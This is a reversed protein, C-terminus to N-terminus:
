KSKWRVRSVWRAWKQVDEREALKEVENWDRALEEHSAISHVFSHCARCLWAVKNLEWEECWGRKLAKGHVMRPILHHYTLPVWDRECLECETTRTQAWIPPPATTTNIYSALVPYLFSQLASADSLLNYSLLSDTVSTPLPALLNDFVAEDLPDAYKDALSADNTIATYSLSRLDEPLSPFIEEALYEIFEGLEEADNGARVDDPVEKPQVPKIATKRGKAVRRKPKQPQIALRRIVPESLCDRFTSFNFEEELLMM